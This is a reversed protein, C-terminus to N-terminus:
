DQLFPLNWAADRAVVLVALDLIVEKDPYPKGQGTQDLTL